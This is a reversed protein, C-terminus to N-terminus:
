SPREKWGAKFGNRRGVLQVMRMVPSYLATGIGGRPLCYKWDSVIQRAYPLLSYRFLSRAWPSWDFIQAEAEGGVFNRKYFQDLSYNHSHIVVSDEVYRTQYGNEQLRKVWEIEELARLDNDFAIQEWVSRRVASSAMSFCVPWYKQRSGDGFTEETDKAHLLWCDKEPLGHGFVKVLADSGVGQPAKWDKGKAQPRPIQRGFVAAVKEDVFGKLMNGLFSDDVPTCDSNLFVVFEGETVEMGKNLVQGPIYTGKPITVIRDTYKALEERTGDTSENDMAVLEFPQSQRSLGDLTEAILPMDNSSRMVICTKM